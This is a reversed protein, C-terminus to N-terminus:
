SLIVENNLKQKISEKQLCSFTKYGQCFKQFLISSWHWQIQNGQWFIQKNIEIEFDFFNLSRVLLMLGVFDVNNNLSDINKITNKKNFMNAIKKIKTYYDNKNFKGFFIENLSIMLELDLLNSQCTSIFINEKMIAWLSHWFGSNINRQKSKLFDM